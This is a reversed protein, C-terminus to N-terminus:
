SEHDFRHMYTQSVTSSPRSSDDSGRGYSTNLNKQLDLQDKVFQKVMQRQLTQVRSMVQTASRNPLHQAYERCKDLPVRQHPWTAEDIEGILLWLKNTEEETWRVISMREKKPKQFNQNPNQNIQNPNQNLNPNQLHSHTSSTGMPMELNGTQFNSLSGSSQSNPSMLYNQQSYNPSFNEYGSNTPQSFNHPQAPFNQSTPPQNPHSVLNNSFNHQPQSVQGPFCPQAPDSSSSYPQSNSQHHQNSSYNVTQMGANHHYAVNNPQSTFNTSSNTPQSSPIFGGTSQSNAASNPNSRNANAPGSNSHQTRSPMSSPNSNKASSRGRVSVSKTSKNKLTKVQKATLEQGTIPHM